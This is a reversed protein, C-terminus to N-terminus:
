SLLFSPPGRKQNSRFSSIRAAAHTQPAVAPHQVIGAFVGAATSPSALQWQSSVSLLQPFSPCKAKVAAVSSGSLGDSDPTMCHHEGNKRCCAPLNSETSPAFVPLILMWSFLLSVLIAVSRRM